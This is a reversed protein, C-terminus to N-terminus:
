RYLCIEVNRNLVGLIIGGGVGVSRGGTNEMQM